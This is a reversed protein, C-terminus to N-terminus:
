QKTNTLADNIKYAEAEAAAVDVIRGSNAVANYTVQSKAVVAQYDANKKQLSAEKEILKINEELVSNAVKRQETLINLNRIDAKTATNNDSKAKLTQYREETSILDKYAQEVAKIEQTNQKTTGTDKTGKKSGTGSTEKAAQKIADLQERTAALVQVLNNLAEGQAVIEKISNLFDMGGMSVNNLNGKLNLIANALKQMNEAVTSDISLSKLLTSINELISPDLGSLSNKLETIIKISNEQGSVSGSLGTLNLNKESFAGSLAKTEQSVTSVDQKLQQISSLLNPINSNNDITGFAVSIQQISKLINDLTILLTSINEPTIQVKSVNQLETGLEKTKSKLADVESQSKSTDVNVSNSSTAGASTYRSLQDQLNHYHDVQAKLDTVRQKWKEVELDYASFDPPTFKGSMGQSYLAQIASQIQTSLETIKGGSQKFAEVYNLLEQSMKAYQGSSSPTKEMQKYLDNIGKSYVDKSVSSKAYESKKIADALRKESEALKSQLEGFNISSIENQIRTVENHAFERIQTLSKYVGTNDIDIKIRNATKKDLHSLETIVKQVASDDCQIKIKANDSKKLQATIESAIGSVDAGIKVIYDYSM